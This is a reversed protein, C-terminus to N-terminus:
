GSIWEVAMVSCTLLITVPCSAFPLATTALSSRSVATDRPIPAFIVPQWIQDVSVIGTSLEAAAAAACRAPKM